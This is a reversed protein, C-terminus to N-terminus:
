SAPKEFAEVLSMADAVDKYDSEATKAFGSVGFHKLVAEDELGLLYGGVAKALLPDLGARAYWPKTPIDIVKIERLGKDRFKALTEYKAAGADVDGALVAACVKDHRGLYEYRKLDKAHIGHQAFERKALFGLTSEKDGTAFSRGKLDKVSKAASDSRVFMAGKFSKRGDELEMAILSIGPSKKKATLFSAPGSRVLDVQGGAIQEITTTYDKGIVLEVKVPKKLAAGLGKEMHELMPQFKEYVESPKDATYVGFRLVVSEAASAACALLLLAISAPPLRM